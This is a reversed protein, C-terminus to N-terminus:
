RNLIKGIASKLMNTTKKKVTSLIGDMDSIASERLKQSNPMQSFIRALFKVGAPSNSSVGLKALDIDLDKLIGDKNLNSRLTKLNLIEQRTKARGIRMGLIRNAAEVLNSTNTLAEREDKRFIYDTETILKRLSQKRFQADIPALQSAFELDFLARDRGTVTSKTQAAKLMAEETLVSNQAKLNDVQAKKTELDYLQSMVPVIGTLLDGYRPTEFRAAKIEGTKPPVAANGANGGRQGYILNPNLGADKYRQMQATPSNYENQMNWFRIADQTQRDYMQVAFQRSKANQYASSGANIASGLVNAGGAILAAAPIPM